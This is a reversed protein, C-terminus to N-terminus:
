SSLIRIEKSRCWKCDPEPNTTPNRGVILTLGYCRQSPQPPLPRSVREDQQAAWPATDLHPRHLYPVGVLRRAIAQECMWLAYSEYTAVRSTGKMIVAAERQQYDILVHVCLWWTEQNSRNVFKCQQRPIRTGGREEPDPCLRGHTRRFQDDLILKM